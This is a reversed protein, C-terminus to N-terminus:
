TGLVQAARLGRGTKGKGEPSTKEGREVEAEAGKGKDEKAEKGRLRDERTM